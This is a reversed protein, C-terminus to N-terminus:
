EEFGEPLHKLVFNQSDYFWEFKGLSNQFRLHCVINSSQKFAM